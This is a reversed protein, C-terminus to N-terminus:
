KMVKRLAKLTRWININCVIRALYGIRIKGKLKLNAEIIKNYFDPQFSLHKQYVFPMLSLYGTIQGTKYPEDFGYHIYGRAKRPAIHKFVSKIYKKLYARTKVTCSLNWFKKIRNVKKDVKAKKTQIRDIIKGPTWNSLTEVVKRLFAIVRGFFKKEGDPLPELSEDDFLDYTSDIFEHDEGTEDATDEAHEQVEEEVSTEPTSDEPSDDQKDINDPEEKPNKTEFTDEFSDDEIHEIDSEFKSESTNKKGIRIGCVRIMQQFDKSKQDFLIKVSVILFRVKAEVHATEHYDLNVKYRIPAFLVLLVLLLILGLIGLIIWLLIKLITLLIGLM